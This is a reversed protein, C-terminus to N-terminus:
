YLDFISSSYPSLANTQLKVPDQFLITHKVITDSVCGRSVPFLVFYM